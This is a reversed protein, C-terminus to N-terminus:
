RIVSFQRELRQFVTSKRRLFTGVNTGVFQRRFACNDAFGAGSNAGGLVAIFRAINIHNIVARIEGSKFRTIHVVAQGPRGWLLM